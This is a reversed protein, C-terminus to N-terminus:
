DGSNLRTKQAKEAKLREIKAPGNDLVLKRIANTADRDDLDALENAIRIVEPHNEETIFITRAM